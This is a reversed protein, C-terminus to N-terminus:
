SLLCTLKALASAGTPDNVGALREILYAIEEPTLPMEEPRHKRGTWAEGHERDREQRQRLTLDYKHRNERRRCAEFFVDSNFENPDLGREQCIRETFERMELNHWYGFPKTM